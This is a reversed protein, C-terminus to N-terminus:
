HVTDKRYNGSEDFFAEYGMPYRYKRISYAKIFFFIALSAIIVGIVFIGISWPFITTKPDIKIVLLTGLAILATIISASMTILNNTKNDLNVRLDIERQFQSRIEDPFDNEHAGSKPEAQM